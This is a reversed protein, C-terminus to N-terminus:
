GNELGELQQLYEEKALCEPQFGFVESFNQVVQETVKAFDQPEGLLKQLSTVGKDIIGCPNIWRFHELNTNINFAFGHMTVRKKLACGLATIKENGIWVGTYQPIRGAVIGYDQQLLKIFSEELSRMYLHVGQHHNKLDLIPYGVLQGPGHYTVDGGRRTRCIKVGISNLYEESALVNRVDGVAGITLVPPHELVLLVDDIVDRQRLLNLHLQLDLAEQYDILGLNIVNL